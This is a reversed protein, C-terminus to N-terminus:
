VAAMMVTLVADCGHGAVREVHVVHVHNFGVGVPGRGLLLRARCCARCASGCRRCVTVVVVRSTTATTNGCHERRTRGRRRRGGNIQGRWGSRQRQMMMIVVIVMMVGAAPEIAPKAGGRSGRRCTRTALMLFLRQRGHRLAVTVRQM